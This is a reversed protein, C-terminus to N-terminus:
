SSLRLSIYVTYDGFHNVVALLSAIWVDMVSLSFSFAGCIYM